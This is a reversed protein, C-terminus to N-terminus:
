NNFLIKEAESVTKHPPVSFKTLAKGLANYKHEGMKHYPLLEIKQPNYPALFAKIKKIEEISDNVNHILPIRIWLTKNINFLRRLNILIQKNSVGTYKEHIDNSIAKIDYLVLDTYPLVREFSEWPVNGATDIATHIEKEKCLKLVATLENPYLMCEGGSFTVGGGSNIYFMKDKVIIDLVEDLTYEKGCIKRADVPCYFECKGCLDCKKLHNPCIDACKGCNICKDRYYMMQKQASQSEPNHCWACRLNCGKFFVVTRIGPGDVLSGRQLDFLKYM